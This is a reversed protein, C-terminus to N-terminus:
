RRARAQLEALWAAARLGIWLPTLIVYFVVDAVALIAWWVGWRWLPVPEKARASV